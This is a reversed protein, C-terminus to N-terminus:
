AFVEVPLISEAAHALRLDMTIFTARLAVALAIYTGDYATFNDRLEWVVGLLDDHRHRQIPLQRHIALATRAQMEEIAHTLLYRRVVHLVEIDLLHPANLNEDRELLRARLAAAAPRALLIEVVASADVVVM